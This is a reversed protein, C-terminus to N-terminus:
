QTSAHQAPIYAWVKRTGKLGHSPNVPTHTRRDSSVCPDTIASLSRALANLSRKNVKDGEWGLALMALEQTSFWRKPCARLQELMAEAHPDEPSYAAAQLSITQEEEKNFWSRAGRRLEVVARAWIRDRNTTIWDNDIETPALVPFRRNGTPDNAWDDRNTTGCLISNRKFSQTTRGYPARFSDDQASVFRKIKESKNAGVFIQDAESWENIWNRHLIMLDDKKDTLDGMSDSFYDGALARFFTSKGLGQPGFLILCFDVKCGPDLVREVASLLFRQVVTRSWSGALGLTLVAIQDWESDSLIPGDATGLGDIYTRVPDFRRSFAVSRAVAQFDGKKFRLGHEKVCSVHLAEFEAENIERGNMEIQQTRLNLRPKYLQEILSEYEALPVKREEADVRSLPATKEAQYTMPQGHQDVRIRGQADVLVPSGQSDCLLVNGDPLKRVTFRSNSDM